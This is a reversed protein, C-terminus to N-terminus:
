SPSSSSTMLASTVWMTASTSSPTWVCTLPSTESAGIEGQKKVSMKSTGHSLLLELVQHAPERLGDGHALIPQLGTEGFLSFDVGRVEQMQESLDSKSGKRCPYYKIRSLLFYLSTYSLKHQTQTIFGRVFRVCVCVCFLNTTFPPTQGCPPAM